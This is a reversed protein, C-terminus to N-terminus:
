KLYGKQCYCMGRPTSTAQPVIEKEVSKGAQPARFTEETVMTASNENTVADNLQMMMDLVQKKQAETM